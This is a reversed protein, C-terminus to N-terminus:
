VPLCKQTTAEHVTPLMVFDAQQCYHGVLARDSNSMDGANMISAFPCIFITARSVLGRLDPELILRQYRPAIDFFGPEHFGDLM